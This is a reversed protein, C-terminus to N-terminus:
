QAVVRTIIVRKKQNKKLKAFMPDDDSSFQEDGSNPLVPQLIGSSVFPEVLPQESHATTERVRKRPRNIARAKATAPEGARLFTDQELNRKANNAPMASSSSSAVSPQQPNSPPSKALQQQLQQTAKVVKDGFEKIIDPLPRDKQKCRQVVHWEALM